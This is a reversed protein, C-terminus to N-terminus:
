PLTELREQWGPGGMRQPTVAWPDIIALGHIGNEKYSARATLPVRQVLGADTGAAGGGAPELRPHFRVDKHSQPFLAKHFVVGQM